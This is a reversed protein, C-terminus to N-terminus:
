GGVKKAMKRELGAAREPPMLSLWYAVLSTEGAQIAQEETLRFIDIVDQDEMALLIKVANAPPMGVLYTANQKLNVRRNDFDKLRENFVKERDELAKEKEKLQEILQALEDEKKKLAQERSDLDQLRLGLAEQQKALREKELLLPDEADLPPKRGGFLGYVPAIMRRANILGLYDFWVLGGLVLATIVLLLLLIRFGVGIRGEDAL